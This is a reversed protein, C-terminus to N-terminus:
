GDMWSCTFLYFFTGLGFFPSLSADDVHGGSKEWERFYWALDVMVHM